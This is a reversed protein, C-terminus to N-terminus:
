LGLRLRFRVAWRPAAVESAPTLRWVSWVDAVRFINGLGVGLESYPLRAFDGYAVKAELLEHLRLRRVGPIRNLVVGRGDWHAQLSLYRSAIHSGPMMLTFRSPDFTYSDNGPLCGLLPSPVNGLTIGARFRYDLTGGVGLLLTQTLLADLRGYLRYCGQQMPEPRYSGLEGGLYLVPWSAVAHRHTTFIEGARDHWGLRVLGALSTFRVGEDGIRGTQVSVKTEVSPRSGSAVQWTDESWVRLTRSRHLAKDMESFHGFLNSMAYTSFAMQGYGYSNDGALLDFMTQDHWANHDWYYAGLLHRQETPLLVLVGARYKVQRDRLGYGVYGELSVHPFLTENTRLPLGMRLGERENYGILEELRGVDLPMRKGSPERLPMYGTQLTYAAWRAFRLLPAENNANANANDNVDENVNADDNHNDNATFSRKALLTPFTKSSDIRTAVSFVAMLDEQGMCGRDYASAYTLSSLYNVNADPSLAARFDTMWWTASDVVMQGQLVPDYTNRPRFDICYRKPAALSDVLYYRYYSPASSALPSLISMQGFPLQSRYVDLHTPLPVALSTYLDAPLPLLYTSDAQRLMHKELSKWLRRSLHRGTIDSLYYQETAEGAEPIRVMPRHRRVSDLMAMAPNLGPMVLLEPLAQREAQLRVEIGADVGPQVEFRERRYGTHSVVLVAKDRLDVHLFFNGEADSIAGVRTGQFYINAGVLAEDTDTDYVTGVIYTEVAQVCVPLVSLLVILLFKNVIPLISVSSQRVCTKRRSM